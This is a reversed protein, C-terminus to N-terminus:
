GLGLEAIGKLQAQTRSRVGLKQYIAKLYGGVTHPSIGLAIAVQKQSNGKVLLDLVDLERPTLRYNPQRKIPQLSKNIVVLIGKSGDYNHLISQHTSFVYNSKPDARREFQYNLYGTSNNLLESDANAFMNAEYIPLYDHATLGVLNRVSENPNLDNFAQNCALVVGFSNKIAVASQIADLAEQPLGIFSLKM